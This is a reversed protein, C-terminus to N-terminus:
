EHTMHSLKKGRLEHRVFEPKELHSEARVTCIGDDRVSLQENVPDVRSQHAPMQISDKVTMSDMHMSFPSFEARINEGVTALNLHIPIAQGNQLLQHKWDQPGFEDPTGVGKEYLRAQREQLM